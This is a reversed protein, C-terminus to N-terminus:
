RDDRNSANHLDQSERRLTRLGLGSDTRSLEEYQLLQSRFVAEREVLERRSRKRIPTGDRGDDIAEMSAPEDLASHIGRIAPARRDV